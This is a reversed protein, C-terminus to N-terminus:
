KLEELSFITQCNLKEVKAAKPGRKIWIPSANPISLLDKIHLPNDDIFFIKGMKETLKTAQGTKDPYIFILDKQLYDTIGTLTIKATQFELTGESYIGLLYKEKLKQLVPITEPYLAEKYLLPNNFIATIKEELLPNAFYKALFRAYDRPSFERSTGLVLSFEKVATELETESLNGASQIEKQTLQRLKATDILTYDIDFLIIKKM